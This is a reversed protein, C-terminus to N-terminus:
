ITTISNSHTCPFLIQKGCSRFEHYLLLINMFGQYPYNDNQSNQLLSMEDLLIVM